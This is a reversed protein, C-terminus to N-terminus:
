TKASLSWASSKAPAKASPASNSTPTSSRSQTIGPSATSGHSLTLTLDDTSLPGPDFTRHPQLAPGRPCLYRSSPRRQQRAVDGTEKRRPLVQIVGMMGGDEHELLHCHYVFTGVIDPNRFDMRLTVSPYVASKGEWFAVNVTDKLFPEDVQVGDLKLLLFHIQHIHFAHLERSRNEIIWDEVDGQHVVIDPQSQQPDYPSPTHGVETIM